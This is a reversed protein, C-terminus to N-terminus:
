AYGRGDITSGLADVAFQLPTNISGVVVAERNSYAHGVLLRLTHKIRQPVGTASTAYGATYRVEVGNVDRLANTPWTQNDRLGIRAPQSATDVIYSTAALTTTSTASTTTYKVSSVSLVPGRPLEIADRGDPWEDTFYDWTQLVFSRDYREELWERWSQSLGAIYTDEDSHEIHLHKKAETTTLAEAAPATVRNVAWAM